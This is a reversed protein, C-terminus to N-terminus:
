SAGLSTLILNGTPRVLAVDGPLVVTTAEREEVIAPGEIRDGPRLAYRDVVKCEIYGGFETFYAKRSSEFATGCSTASQAGDRGRGHRAGDSSLGTPIIATLYWDTAEIASGEQSYGYTSQYTEHFEAIIHNAYDSAIDGPPLDIKLEYGQGQYRLFAFRKWEVLPAREIERVENRVRQELERWRELSARELDVLPEPDSWQHPEPILLGTAGGTAGTGLRG